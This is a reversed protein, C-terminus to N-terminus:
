LLAMTPLNLRSVLANQLCVFLLILRLIQYFNNYKFFVYVNKIARFILYIYRLAKRNLKYYFFKYLNISHNFLLTLKYCILYTLHLYM